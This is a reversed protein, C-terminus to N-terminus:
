VIRGHFIVAHLSPLCLLPSFFCIPMSLLTARHGNTSSQRGLKPLEDKVKTKLQQMVGERLIKKNEGTKTTVRRLHKTGYLRRNQMESLM